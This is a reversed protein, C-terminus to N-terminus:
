GNTIEALKSLVDSCKKSFEDPAKIEEGLNNGLQDMVTFYIDSVEDASYERDEININISSLFSTQNSNLISLLKYM